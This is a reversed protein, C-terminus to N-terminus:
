YDSAEDIKAKRGKLKDIAGGVTIDETAPDKPPPPNMRKKGFLSGAGPAGARPPADREDKISRNPM